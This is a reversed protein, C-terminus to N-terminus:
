ISFERRATVDLAHDEHFKAFIYCKHQNKALLFALFTLNTSSYPKNSKNNLANNSAILFKKAYFAVFMVFGTLFAGSSLALLLGKELFLKAKRSAELLQQPEAWFRPRDFHFQEKACAAKFIFLFICGRATM